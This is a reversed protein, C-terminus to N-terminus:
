EKEGECLEKRLKQKLINADSLESTAKLYYKCKAPAKMKAIITSNRGCSIEGAFQQLDRALQEIAVKGWGVAEQKETIHKGIKWYLQVLKAYAAESIRIRTDRIINKIQNQFVVYDRNSSTLNSM